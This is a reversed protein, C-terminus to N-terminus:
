DGLGLDSFALDMILSNERREHQDLRDLLGTMRRRLGAGRVVDDESYSLLSNIVRRSKSLLAAHEALLDDIDGTARPHREKLEEMMGSQEEYRFHRCLQDHLEVLQRSLESAWAHAGPQGIEPRPPELAQRIREVSQELLRHEDIIKERWSATTETTESM